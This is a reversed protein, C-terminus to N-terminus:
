CCECPRRANFQTLGPDIGARCLSTTLGCGGSQVHLLLPTDQAKIAHRHLIAGSVGDGDSNGEEKAGDEPLITLIHLGEIKGGDGRGRERERERQGTHCAYM